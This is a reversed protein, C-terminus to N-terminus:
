VLLPDTQSFATFPIHPLQPSRTISEQGPYEWVLLAVINAPSKSFFFRLSVLVAKKVGLFCPSWRTRKIHPRKGPFNTKLLTPPECLIGYM